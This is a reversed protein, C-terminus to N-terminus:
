RFEYSPPVIMQVWIDLFVLPCLLFIVQYYLSVFLQTISPRLNCLKERSAGVVMDLVMEIGSKLSLQFQHLM